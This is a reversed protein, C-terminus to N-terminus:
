GFVGIGLSRFVGQLGGVFFTLLVRGMRIVYNFLDLAWSLPYSWFYISIKICAFFVMLLGNLVSGAFGTYKEQPPSTYVKDSKTPM